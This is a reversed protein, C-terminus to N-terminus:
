HTLHDVVQNWCNQFGLVRKKNSIQNLVTKMQFEM